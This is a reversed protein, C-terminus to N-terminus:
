TLLGRERGLRYDDVYYSQVFDIVKQSPAVGPNDTENVIGVYVKTQGLMRAVRLTETTYNNFDLLEASELWYFQPKFYIDIANEYKPFEDLLQDYNMAQIQEASLGMSDRIVQWEDSKKQMFRLLSLFRDLPDRFFGYVQFTEFGEINQNSPKEHATTAYFRLGWEKLLRGLMTTGTRPPMAFVLKRQTDYYM